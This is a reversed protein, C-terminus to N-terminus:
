GGSVRHLDYMYGYAESIGKVQLKILIAFFIFFLFQVPNTSDIAPQNMIFIKM